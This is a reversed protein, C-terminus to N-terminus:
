SIAPSDDNENELKPFLPSIQEHVQTSICPISLFIYMRRSRTFPHTFLVLEHLDVRKKNRQLNVRNSDVALITIDKCLILSNYRQNRSLVKSLNKGERSREKSSLSVTDAKGFYGISGHQM